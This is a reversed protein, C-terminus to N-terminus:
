QAFNPNAFEGHYKRAAIDYAKAAEIENDFLGLHIQKGNNNIAARWKNSYGQYCHLNVGLYKSSGRPKKNKQNTSCNALRLNGRQNNLTNRDKHDVFTTPETVNMIFRHMLIQKGDIYAGAYTYGGSTRKSWSYKNLLDYDSDDVLVFVKDKLKNRKLNLQLQKM